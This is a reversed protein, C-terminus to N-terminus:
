PASYVLCAVGEYTWGYLGGQLENWNTTYFHQGLRHNNYRYLNQTSSSPTTPCYGVVGEYVWGNGGGGLENWNATYFRDGSRPNRYRHLAQTGSVATPLLYGSVSEYVWGTAGANLEQWSTTYFHSSTAPSSYRYLARVSSPLSSALQNPSGSGADSVRGLTTQSIVASVADSVSSSPNSQLFNAVIGAVHPSAMSTGNLTSTAASNGIWTSTIAVGPAFLDVCTGINSFDARRDASDTAGVTLAHLARAPSYDCANAGTNGAAVVYVVGAQISRTVADDLAQYSAGELSMNAVAPKIANAAVWDVGAIVQAWSGSGDCGLVRVSHLRVAKAVGYTTSGITGAVHTGHGNCDLAGNGDNVATFDATARGGFDGHSVNMGSDIVYAHVGVGTQTYNYASDLPLSRQDIRDLGWPPNYETANARVVANEAVYAVGPQAATLRAQIETGRMSYGKITHRYTHRIEGGHAAILRAIVTDVGRAAAVEPAKDDLVVIYEGEVREASRLFAHPEVKAAPASGGAQAASPALALIALICMWPLSMASLNQASENILPM